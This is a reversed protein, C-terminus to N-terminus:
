GNGRRPALATALRRDVAKPTPVGRVGIAEVSFSAVCNAYRAATIPDGHNLMDILFAAAFVDGAGTADVEPAPFGAVPWSREREFVTCGQAGQTAVLLRASGALSACAALGGDLDEQSLIVVDVTSLIEEAHEWASRRVFGREDWSRLWGQPTVGLLTAGRMATALEPGFEAALPALHVVPAVRWSEPVDFLQIPAAVARLWQQRHGDTYVNEFTTTDPSPRVRVDIGPLIDPLDLNASASTVVGVRRGLARATLGAYTVTGGPVFGGPVVDRTVVGVIVYDPNDDPCLPAAGIRNPEATM